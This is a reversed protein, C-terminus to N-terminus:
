MRSVELRGAVQVELVDGNGLRYDPGAASRLPALGLGVTPRSGPATPFPTPPAPQQQPQQPPAPLPGTGPQQAVSITPMSLCVALLLSLARRIAGKDRTVPRIGRLPTNDRNWTNPGFPFLGVKQTTKCYNRGRVDAPSVGPRERRERLPGERRRPRGPSRPRRSSGTAGSARDPTPRPPM